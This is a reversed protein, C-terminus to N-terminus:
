AAYFRKPPSPPIQVWAVSERGVLNRTVGRRGSSYKETNNSQRFKSLFSYVAQKRQRPDFDAFALRHLPKPFYVTVLATQKRAHRIPVIRWLTFMIACSFFFLLFKKSFLSSKKIFPLLRIAFPLFDNYRCKFKLPANVTIFFLSISFNNFSGKFPSKTDSEHFRKPFFM